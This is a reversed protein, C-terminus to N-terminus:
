KKGAKRQHETYHAGLARTIYAERGEKTKPAFKDATRRVEKQIDAPADTLKTWPGKGRGAGRGLTDAEGPGDSRRPKKEGAAAATREEEERTEREEDTEHEEGAPPAAGAPKFEADVAKVIAAAFEEATGFKKPDMTKGFEIAKASKKPDTGFWPAKDLQARIETDGYPPAKPATSVALKALDDSIKRAAVTDGNTVAADLQAQLGTVAQDRMMMNLDM